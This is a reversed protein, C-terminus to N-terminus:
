PLFIPCPEGPIGLDALVDSALVAPGSPSALSTRVQGADDLFAADDYGSSRLAEVIKAARVSLIVGSPLADKKARAKKPEPM